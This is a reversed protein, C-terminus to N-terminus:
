GGWKGFLWIVESNQVKRLEKSFPLIVRFEYNM